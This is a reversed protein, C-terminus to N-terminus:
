LLRRYNTNGLAHLFYHEYLGVLSGLKESCDACEFVMAQMEDDAPNVTTTPGELFVSTEVFETSQTLRSHGANDQLKSTVLDMHLAPIDRTNHSQVSEQSELAQPQHTEFYDESGAPVKPGSPGATSNPSVSDTNAVQLLDHDGSDLNIVSISSSTRLLHPPVYLKDPHPYKFLSEKPIANLDLTSLLSRSTSSRAVGLSVSTSKSSQSSHVRSKLDGTHCIQHAHLLDGNSFSSKCRNCKHPFTLPEPPISPLLSAWNNHANSHEQLSKNNAFSLNCQLCQLVFNHLLGHKVLNTLNSFSRACVDCRLKREPQHNKCQHVLLGEQQAFTQPCLPCAYPREKAHNLLHMKYSSLFHFQFSCQSCVYRRGKQRHIRQHLWLKNWREFSHGCRGCVYGFAPAHTQMHLCLCRYRKFTQACRPCKFRWLSPLKEVDEQSKNLPTVLSPMPLPPSQDDSSLRVTEPLRLAKKFWSSEPIHHETQRHSLTRSSKHFQDTNSPFSSRSAKLSHMDAPLGDKLYTPTKHQLIESLSSGCAVEEGSMQCCIVCHVSVESDKKYSQGCAFCVCPPSKTHTQLHLTYQCWKQYLQQCIRCKFFVPTNVQGDVGYTVLFGETNCNKGNLSRKRHCLKSLQHARLAPLDCFAYGCHSCSFPTEGTHKESHKKLAQIQNFSKACISCAYPKVPWHTREHVLLESSAGFKKGCTKCSILKNRDHKRIKRVYRNPLKNNETGSMGRTTDRLSVDPKNSQKSDTVHTAFHSVLNSKESFMKGCCPCLLSVSQVHVNKHSKLKSLQAFNKGCSECRYPKEGTHVRQHVTYASIHRFAQHCYKCKISKKAARTSKVVDAVTCTDKNQTTVYDKDCCEVKQVPSSKPLITKSEYLSNEVDVDQELLEQQQDSVQVGVGQLLNRSREDQVNMDFTNTICPHFGTSNITSQLSLECSADGNLEKNKGNCLTQKGSETANADKKQLEPSSKSLANRTNSYFDKASSQSTDCQENYIETKLPDESCAILRKPASSVKQFNTSRPGSSVSSEQGFNHRPMESTKVCQNPECDTVSALTTVKQNKKFCGDEKIKAWSNRLQKKQRYIKIATWRPNKRGVPSPIKANIKKLDRSFKRTNVTVNESLEQIASLVKAMKLLKRKKLSCGVSNTCSSKSDTKREPKAFQMSHDKYPEVQATEKEFFETPTQPSGFNVESKEEKSTNELSFVCNVGTEPSSGITLSQSQGQSNYNATTCDSVAGVNTISPTLIQGNDKEKDTNNMMLSTNNTDPSLKFLSYSQSCNSTDDLMQGGGNENKRVLKCSSEAAITLLVPKRPTCRVNTKNSSQEMKPPPNSEESRRWTRSIETQFHRMSKLIPSNEKHLNHVLDDQKGDSTSRYLPCPDASVTAFELHHRPISVHRYPTANNDTCSKTQSQMCKGANVNQCSQAHEGSPRHSSHQLAQKLVSLGRKNGTSNSVTLSVSSMHGNLNTSQVHMNSIAPGLEDSLCPKKTICSVGTDETTKSQVLTCVENADYFGVTSCQKPTGCITECLVKDNISSGHVM